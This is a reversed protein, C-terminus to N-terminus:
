SKLGNQNLDNAIQTMLNLSNQIQISELKPENVIKKTLRLQTQNSETLNEHKTLKPWRYICRSPSFAHVLLNQSLHHFLILSALMM